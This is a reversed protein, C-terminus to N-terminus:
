EFHFNIPDGGVLNCRPHTNQMRSSNLRELAGVHITVSFSSIYSSQLSSIPDGGSVM